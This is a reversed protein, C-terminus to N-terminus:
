VQSDKRAAVIRGSLGGLRASLRVGALQCGVAQACRMAHCAIRGAPPREPRRRRQPAFEEPNLVATKSYV